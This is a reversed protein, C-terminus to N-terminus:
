AFLVRGNPWLQPLFNPYFGGRILPILSAARFRRIESGSGYVAGAQNWVRGHGRWVGRFEAESVNVPHAPQGAQQHELSM